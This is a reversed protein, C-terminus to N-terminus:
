KENNIEDTLLYIIECINADILLVISGKLAAKPLCSLFRSLAVELMDTELFLNAFLLDSLM